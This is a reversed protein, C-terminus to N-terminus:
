LALVGARSSLARDSVPRLVRASGTSTDVHAYYEEVTKAYDGGEAFTAVAADFASFDEVDWHIEAQAPGLGFTTLFIGRFKWGKPSSAAFNKEAKGAWKRFDGLRENGVTASYIYLM